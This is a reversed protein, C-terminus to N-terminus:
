YTAYYLLLYDVKFVLPSYVSNSLLLRREAVCYTYALVRGTVTSIAVLFVKWDGRNASNVTILIDAVRTCCDLRVDHLPHLPATILLRVICCCVRWM